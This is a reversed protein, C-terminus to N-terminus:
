TKMDLCIASMEKKTISNSNSLTNKLVCVCLLVRASIYLDLEGFSSLGLCFCNQLISHHIFALDEQRFLSVMGVKKPQIVIVLAYNQDYVCM